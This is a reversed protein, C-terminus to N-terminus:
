AAGKMPEVFKKTINFVVGPAFEILWAQGNARGVYVGVRGKFRGGVISVSDGRRIGKANPVRQRETRLQRGTLIAAWHKRPVGFEDYVRQVHTKITTGSRGLRRGIERQTLGAAYMRAIREQTPTLVFPM